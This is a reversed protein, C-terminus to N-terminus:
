YTNIEEVGLISYLVVMYSICKQDVRDWLQAVHTIYHLNNLQMM